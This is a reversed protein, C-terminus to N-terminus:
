AFSTSFNLVRTRHESVKKEKKRFDHWRHSLTFFYQSAPSAVSSLVVRRRRMAHQMGLDVFVCEYYDNSKWQQVPKM